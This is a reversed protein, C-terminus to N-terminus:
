ELFTITIDALCEYSQMLNTKSLCHQVNKRIEGSLCIKHTSVPIVPSAMRIFAWCCLNGYLGSVLPGHAM